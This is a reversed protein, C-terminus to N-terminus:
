GRDFDFNPLAWRPTSPLFLLADETPMEKSQRYRAAFRKRLMGLTVDQNNSDAAGYRPNLRFALLTTLFDDFEMPFPSEEDADPDTLRTWGGLDARYFWERNLGNTNLIISNANEIKRGNGNLGINVTAFNGSNDLIGLRAGDAPNPHLYLTTGTANNFVIRYNSPIYISEIDTSQDEGTAFSNVLGYTGFNITQLPEGLENGVIGRLLRHMQRLGEEHEEADPSVGVALIGSERFADIILQRITTM